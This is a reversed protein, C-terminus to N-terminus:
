LKWSLKIGDLISSLSLSRWLNGGLYVHSCRGFTIIPNSENIKWRQNIKGALNMLVIWCSWLMMKSARAWLGCCTSYTCFLHVLVLHFGWEGDAAFTSTFSLDPHTNKPHPNSTHQWGWATQFLQVSLLLTSKREQAREILVTTSRWGSKLSESWIKYESAERCLNHNIERVGVSTLWTPTIFISQWKWLSSTLCTELHRKVEATAATCCPLFLEGAVVEKKDIIEFTGQNYRGIKEGTQKWKVVEM